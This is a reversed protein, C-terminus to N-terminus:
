GLGIKIGARALDTTGTDDNYARYRLRKVYNLGDVDSQMPPDGVPVLHPLAIVCARGPTSSVTYVALRPTLSEPETNWIDYHTHTNLTEAEPEYSFFVECEGRRWGQVTQYTEGGSPSNPGMIPTANYNMELAINRPIDAARTQTGSAAVHLSGFSAVIPPYDNTTTASPFTQNAHEWDAVGITLSVTLVEGPNLGNWSVGTLACGRCWYQENGSGLWFRLTSDVSSNLEPWLQLLPFAVQGGQPTGSVGNRLTMTGGSFSQVIAGQGRGAESQASLRVLHGANFTGAALDGTYANSWNGNATSGVGASDSGGLLYGLLTYLPTATLSTTPSTGHGYVEVDVTFSGSKPGKLSMGPSDNLRQTASQREIRSQTLGSADFDRVILRTAYTDVQEAFSSEVAYGLAKLRSPNATNSM